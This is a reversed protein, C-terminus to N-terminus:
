VAYLVTDRAPNAADWVFNHHRIYYKYDPMIGYLYSPIETIDEPKHYICIVLKPKCRTITDKAGKLAELESGEIDMKILTADEGGLASDITTTNIQLDGHEIVRAGGAEAGYGYNSIFPQKGDSSWAGEPFIHVNKLGLSEVTSLTTQYNKLHPEFGYIKNYNGNCISNFQMITDGTYCGVDIYTETDTLKIFEQQFYSPLHPYNTFRYRGETVFINDSSFGKMILTDSNEQQWIPNSMIILYNRYRAEAVLENPSIVPLGLYGDPQWKQYMIDCIAHVNIQKERLLTLCHKTNEGLSYIIADKCHLEANDLLYRINRIIKAPHFLRNTDTTMDYLIKREGTFLYSIRSRFIFRSEEDELKSYFARIKAYDM